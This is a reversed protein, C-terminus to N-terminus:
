AAQFFKELLEKENFALEMGINSLASVRTQSINGIYDCITKQSINCYCSMFFCSIARLKTYKQKYKIHIKDKDLELYKAIFNVVETPKYNRPLIKRCSRYENEIKEFEIDLEDDENETRKVLEIYNKMNNKNNLSMISTLFSLDLVDFRDTKYIYDKLSSFEYQEVKGAYDKIDKPNNHIYASLIILYEEKDVIKSKFRDMFLHGRREYKKNYYIAYSFNIGHMIRSVDAGNCDLMLHGHSDMLCYAYIKFQYKKQYKKILSFYMLKDEIERFLRLEDISRVMVHYISDESKERPLRPM